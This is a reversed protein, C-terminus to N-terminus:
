PTYEPDPEPDSVESSEEVLGNSSGTLGNYFSSIASPVNFISFGSSSVQPQSSALNASEDTTEVAKTNDSAYNTYTAGQNPSYSASAQQQATYVTPDSYASPNQYYGAPEPDAIADYYTAPDSYAAQNQYYGAPEPDAVADDVVYDSTKYTQTNPDAAASYYSAPETNTVAAAAYYSAPETNTIAAATYYSAPEPDASADDAYAYNNSATDQYSSSSGSSYSPLAETEYSVESAAYSDGQSAYSAEDSSAFINV